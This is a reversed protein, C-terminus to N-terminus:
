RSLVRLFRALAHDDVIHRRVSGYESRAVKKGTFIGKRDIGPVLYHTHVFQRCDVVTGRSKEVITFLTVKVLKLYFENM